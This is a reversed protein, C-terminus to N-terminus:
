GREDSRVVSDDRRLVGRRHEASLVRMLLADHPLAPLM